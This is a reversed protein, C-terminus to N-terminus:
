TGLLAEERWSMPATRAARRSGFLSFVTTPNGRDASASDSSPEAPTSEARCSSIKRRPRRDTL